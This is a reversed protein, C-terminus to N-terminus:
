VVVAIVVFGGFIVFIVLAAGVISGAGDVCIVVLHVVFVREEIGKGLPALFEADYGIKDALVVVVAFKFEATVDYFNRFGPFIQRIFGNVAIVRYEHVFGSCFFVCIGAVVFVICDVKERSFFVAHASLFM